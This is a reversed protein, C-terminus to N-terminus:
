KMLGVCTELKSAFHLRLSVAVGNHHHSVVERQAGAQSYTYSITCPAFVQPRPDHPSSYYTDARSLVMLKPRKAKFLFLNFGLRICQLHMYTRLPTHLFADLSFCTNPSPRLSSQIPIWALMAFITLASNLQSCVCTGSFENWHEQFKLICM